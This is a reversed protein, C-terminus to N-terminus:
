LCLSNLKIFLLIYLMKGIIEEQSTQPKGELAEQVFQGVRKQVPGGKALPGKDEIKLWRSRPQLYVYNRKLVVLLM